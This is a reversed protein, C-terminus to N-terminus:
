ATYLESRKILRYYRYDLAVSFRSDHCVAPRLDGYNLMLLEGPQMVRSRDPVVQSAGYDGLDSDADPEDDPDTKRSSRRLDSMELQLSSVLNLISGLTAESVGSGPGQLREDPVESRSAELQDETGTGTRTTVM